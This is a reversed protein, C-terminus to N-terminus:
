YLRGRLTWVRRRSRLGFQWGPWPHPLCPGGAVLCLSLPPHSPSDLVVVPGPCGARSPGGACLSWYVSRFRVVLRHPGRPLGSKPRALWARSGCLVARGRLFGFRGGEGLHLSCLQRKSPSTCPLKGLAQGLSIMALGTAWTVEALGLESVAGPPPTCRVALVPARCYRVLPRPDGPVPLGSPPLCM